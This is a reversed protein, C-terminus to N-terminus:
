LKSQISKKKSEIELPPVTGNPGAGGQFRAQSKLM